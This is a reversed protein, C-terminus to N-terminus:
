GPNGEHSHALYGLQSLPIAEDAIMQPIDDYVPYILSRGHNVLGDDLPREVPEGLGNVIQRQAIAQNIQELLDRSARALPQHTRPCRLIELLDDDIM